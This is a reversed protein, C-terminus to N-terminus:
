TDKSLLLKVVDSNDIAQEFDEKSITKMVFANKEEYLMGRLNDKPTYMSLFDEKVQNFMQQYENRQSKDKVIRRLDQLKEKYKIPAQVISTHWDRLVDLVDIPEGKQDEDTPAQRMFGTYDICYSNATSFCAGSTNQYYIETDIKIIKNERIANILACNLDRAFLFRTKKPSEKESISFRENISNLVIEENKSPIVVKALVNIVIGPDISANVLEAVFFYRSQFSFSDNPPSYFFRPAEIILQPHDLILIPQTNLMHERKMEDLQLKMVHMQKTSAYVYIVTLLAVSFSSTVSIYNVIGFNDNKIALFVCTGFVVLLIASIIILVLNILKKDDKM